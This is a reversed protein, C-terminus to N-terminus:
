ALPIVVGVYQLARTWTGHSIESAGSIQRNVYDQFIQVITAKVQADTKGAFMSLDFTFTQQWVNSDVTFEVVANANGASTDISLIKATKPQATM